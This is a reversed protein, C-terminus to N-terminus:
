LVRRVSITCNFEILDVVNAVALDIFYRNLLQALLNPTNHRLLSRQALSVLRPRLFHKLLKLILMLWARDCICIVHLVRYTVPNILRFDPCILPIVLICREIRFAM